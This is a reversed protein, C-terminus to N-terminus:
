WDSMKRIEDDSPRRKAVVKGNRIELPAGLYELQHIVTMIKGSIESVQFFILAALLVVLVALIQLFLM